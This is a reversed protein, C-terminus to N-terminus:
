VGVIEKILTALEQPNAAGKSKKMGQGVLFQLASEKGAKFDLVVQAHESVVEQAYRRLAEVDHVQLLGREKAVAEAIGGENILVALVDKAGRSSLKKSAILGVLGWFVGNSLRELAGEHNAGRVDSLLYNLAIRREEDNPNKSLM